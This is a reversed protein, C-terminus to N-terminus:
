YMKGKSMTMAANASGRTQGMMSGSGMKTKTQRMAPTMGPEIRGNMTTPPASMRSGDKMMGGPMSGGDMRGGMMGYKGTPM